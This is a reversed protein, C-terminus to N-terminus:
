DLTHRRPPIDLLQEVNNYTVDSYDTITKCWRQEVPANVILYTGQYTTVVDRPIVVWTVMKIPDGGINNGM